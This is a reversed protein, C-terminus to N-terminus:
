VHARGIQKARFTKEGIAAMDEELEKLEMSKIDKKKDDLTGM